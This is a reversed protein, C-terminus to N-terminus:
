KIGTIYSTHDFTAGGVGVGTVKLGVVLERTDWYPVFTVHAMVKQYGDGAKLLIQGDGYQFDKYQPVLSSHEAIYGTYTL